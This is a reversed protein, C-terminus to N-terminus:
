NWVSGHLPAAADLEHDEPGDNFRVSLKLIRDRLKGTSEVPTGRLDSSLMSSAGQVAGEVDIKSAFPNLCSIRLNPNYDDVVITLVRHEEAIELIREIAQDKTM